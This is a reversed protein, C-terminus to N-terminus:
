VSPVYWREETAVCTLPVDHLDHAINTVRQIEYALGISSTRANQLFRDYFGKGYGIRHCTRDFAVIPVIIACHEDFFSDEDIVDDVSDPIPEQIGFAGERWQTQWTVRCHLMSSKGGPVLPVYVQKGVGWAYEIFPTTEVEDGVSRYIHVRKALQFSRLKHAREFILQDWLERDGNSVNSRKTLIEKRLENKM